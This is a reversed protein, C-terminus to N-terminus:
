GKVPKCLQQDLWQYPGWGAGVPGHVLCDGDDAVERVTCIAGFKIGHYEARGVRVRMGPVLPITKRPM